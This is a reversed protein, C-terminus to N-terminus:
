RKKRLDTIVRDIDIGFLDAVLAATVSVIPGEDDLWENDDNDILWQIAERYSPRKM